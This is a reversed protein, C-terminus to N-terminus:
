KKIYGGGCACGGPCALLDAFDFEKGAKKIDAAGKVSLTKCGNIAPALEDCLDSSPVSPDFTEEVANEWVQRMTYRSVCSRLIHDYLEIETMTFSCEHKAKLATCPSVWVTFINDGYEKKCWEHFIAEPHRGLVEAHVLKAASPCVPSIGKKGMALASKVEEAAMAIFGSADFVKAIGMSHLINILKGSNEIFPSLAFVVPQKRNLAVRLAKSEDNISLAGTPCAALCQGCGICGSEPMPVVSGIKTDAARNLAGIAHMGQKECAKECRRCLVCKSSDRVIAPSSFDKEQEHHVNAYVRDDMGHERLLAHLECDSYRSCYECDMRHNRCILDLTIRRSEVLKESHTLVEMGEAAKTSCAPMLKPSGKIEVLCIRCSSDPTCGALHCLTPIHVGNEIAAELITRGEESSVAKGNIIFNIM